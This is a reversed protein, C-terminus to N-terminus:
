IGECNNSLLIYYIRFLDSVAWFMRFYFRNEFNALKLDINTNLVGVQTILNNNLHAVDSKVAAMDSKIVAIDSKVVAMDSRINNTNETLHAVDSKTAEVESRIDNTNKTPHALESKTVALESHFHDVKDNLSPSSRPSFTIDNDDYLSGIFRNVAKAISALHHTKRTTTQFIRTQSIRLPSINQTFRTVQQLISRQRLRFAQRLMKLIIDSSSKSFSSKSAADPPHPPTLTFPSSPASKIVKKSGFRVVLFRGSVIFDLALLTGSVCYM